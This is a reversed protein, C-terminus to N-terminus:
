KKLDSIYDSVDFMPGNAIIELVDYTEAINREYKACFDSSNVSNPSPNATNITMVGHIFNYYGIRKQEFDDWLEQSSITQISIFFLIIITFTKKIM